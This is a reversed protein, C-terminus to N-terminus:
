ISPREPFHPLDPNLHDWPQARATWIDLTPRYWAPNDLSVVRIALREPRASSQGFLPSGCTPCFGHSFTNGSDATVTHYTVAGTITVAETPLVLVTAFPSGSTRQCDRCHCNFVMLPEASSEYRVAGCVCGGTFPTPM